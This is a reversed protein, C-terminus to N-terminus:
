EMKKVPLTFNFQAGSNTNSKVWIKGGNLEVFKKSISLGLGTGKEGITGLTTYYGNAFINLIDSEGIGIGSDTVSILIFDKEKKSKIYVTSYEYSFKIANSLLNRIVSKTMEEDAYVLLEGQTKICEISIGKQKATYDYLNIVSTITEKVNFYVKTCKVANMQDRSWNLLNSLLQFSDNASVQMLKLSSLLYEEDKWNETSLLNDTLLQISALPTRMDHGIVSFLKDKGSNLKALYKAQKKLKDKAKKLEVQTKIRLLLEEKFFPKTIYDAGGLTFGKVIEQKSSKATLFIVPIEETRKESKLKECVEFGDIDPMMIDLLILDPSFSDIIDFAEKANQALAFHYDQKKLLSAIVELNLINDDIVLIKNMEDM